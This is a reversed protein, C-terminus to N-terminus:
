DKSILRHDPVAPCLLRSAPSDLSKNRNKPGIELDEIRQLSQRPAPVEMLSKKTGIGREVM